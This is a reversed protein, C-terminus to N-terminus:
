NALFSFSVRGLPKSVMFLTCVSDLCFATRSPLLVNCVSFREDEVNMGVPPHRPSSPPSETSHQPSSPPSEGLKEGATNGNMDLVKDTKELPDDM